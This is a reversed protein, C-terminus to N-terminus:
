LQQATPTAVSASVGRRVIFCPPLQLSNLFNFNSNFNFLLKNKYTLIKQFWLEKTAVRLFNEGHITLSVKSSSFKIIFITLFKQFNEYRRIVM